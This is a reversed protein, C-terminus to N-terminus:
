VLSRNCSEKDLPIPGAEGLTWDRCTSWVWEEPTEVLGRKVPNGHIYDMVKRITDAKRINRDYGGGDLWFRYPSDKQGTALQSQGEPNERQLWNIAKRSVSQKISKLISSISYAEERPWILLHVHEPMLVYAWVDFAHKERAKRVSEAFYTRTRDSLLFPRRRHCSFTLEHADWPDDWRQCQKPHRGDVEM